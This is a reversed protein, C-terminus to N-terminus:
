VGEITKRESIRKGTLRRLVQRDDLILVSNNVSDVCERELKLEERLLKITDLAELFDKQLCEYGQEFTHSYCKCHKCQWASPSLSENSM